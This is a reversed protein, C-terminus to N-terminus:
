PRAELLLRHEWVNGIVEGDCDLPYPHDPESPSLTGFGAVREDWIVKHLCRGSHDTLEGYDLIDGEYMERGTKDKKGTYDMWDFFPCNAPFGIFDKEEKCKPELKCGPLFKGGVETLGLCAEAVALSSWVMKGLRKDWARYKRERM